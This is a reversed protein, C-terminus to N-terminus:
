GQETFNPYRKYWTEPKRVVDIIAWAWTGLGGLLVAIQLFPSWSEFGTLDTDESSGIGIADAAAYLERLFIVIAIVCILQISLSIWFKVKDKEYTYVWTWPGLLAALLISATKDKPQLPRQSDAEM